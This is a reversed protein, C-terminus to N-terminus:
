FVRVSHLRTILEILTNENTTIILTQQNPFAYLFEIDGAVSTLARVDINQIIRDEFSERLVVGEGTQPDIPVRLIPDTKRGIFLFLDNYMTREWELLGAFSHQYSNSEFIIFPQNQNFVHIGVMFSPDVSRLFAESIQARISTLFEESSITRTVESDLEQTTETLYLQAIQGLPLSTNAREAGLAQLIERANKGTIDIEKQEEVFIFSPVDQEIIVKEKEYFFLFFVIVGAGLLIFVISGLTAGMKKIDVGKKKTMIKPIGTRRRQEAATISTLSAKQKRVAEAIDEKYTRVRKIKSEKDPQSKEEKPQPKNQVNITSIAGNLSIKSEAKPSPTPTSIAESKQDTREEPKPLKKPDPEM